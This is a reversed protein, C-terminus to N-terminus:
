QRQSMKRNMLEELMAKYDNAEQENDFVLGYLINSPIGYIKADATERRGLIEPVVKM